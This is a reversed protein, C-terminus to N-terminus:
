MIAFLQNRHTGFDPGIMLLPTDAGKRYHTGGCLGYRKGAQQTRKSGGDPGDLHQWVAVPAPRAPCGIFNLGGAHAAM